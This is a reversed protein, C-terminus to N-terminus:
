SSCDNDQLEQKLEKIAEKYENKESKPVCDTFSKLADLYSKGANKYNQCNAPTPDESYATAAASWNTFDSEVGQLWNGKLCGGLPNLPSKSCGSIGIIAACCGALFLKTITKM